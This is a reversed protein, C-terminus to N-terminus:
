AALMHVRGRPQSAARIDCLRGLGVFWFEKTMSMSACTRTPSSIVLAPYAEVGEIALLLPRGPHALSAIEISDAALPRKALAPIPQTHVAFGIELLLGYLRPRRLLFGVLENTALFHFVHDKVLEGREDDVRCRAEGDGVLRTIVMRIHETGVLAAAPAFTVGLVLAAGVDAVETPALFEAADEGGDKDLHVLMAMDSVFEIAFQALQIIGKFGNCFEGLGFALRGVCDYVGIMFVKGEDVGEFEVGICGAHSAFVLEWELLANPDKGLFHIHQEVLRIRVEGLLEGLSVAAGGHKLGEVVHGVIGM